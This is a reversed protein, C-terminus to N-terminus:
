CDPMGQLRVSRIFLWAFAAVWTTTLVLALALTLCLRPCSPPPALPRPLSVARAAQPYLSYQMTVDYYDYWVIVQTVLVMQVLLFVCAGGLACYLWGTHFTDLHPM